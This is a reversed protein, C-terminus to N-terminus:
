SSFNARLLSAEEPTAASTPRATFAGIGGYTYAVLRFGAKAFARRSAANGPAIAAWAQRFGHEHLDKLIYRLLGPFIGRGRYTPLTLCDWIYAHDKPLAVELRLDPIRVMGYQVWGYGVIEEGALALAASGAETLRRRVEALAIGMVRALNEEQGRTLGAFHM